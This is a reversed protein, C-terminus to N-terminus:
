DLDPWVISSALIAICSRAWIQDQTLQDHAVRNRNQRIFNLLGRAEDGIIRNDAADRIVSIFDKSRDSSPIGLAKRLKKEAAAALDLAARHSTTNNAIKAFEDSKGAISIARSVVAIFPDENKNFTLVTRGQKQIVPVTVTQSKETTPLSQNKKLTAIERVLKNYKSENDVATKKWFEISQKLKQEDSSIAPIDNKKRILLLERNKISVELKIAELQSNKEELDAEQLSLKIEKSNLQAQLSEIKETLQDLPSKENYNEKNANNPLDFGELRASDGFEAILEGLVPKSNPYTWVKLNPNWRYGGVKKAREKQSFPVSVHIEDNSRSIIVQM